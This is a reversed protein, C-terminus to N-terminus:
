PTLSELVLHRKHGSTDVSFPIQKIVPQSDNVMVRRQLTYKITGRLVIITALKWLLSDTHGAKFGRSVQSNQIM